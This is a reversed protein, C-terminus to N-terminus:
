HVPRRMRVTLHSILNFIGSFLHWVPFARMKEAKTMTSLIETEQSATLRFHKKSIDNSRELLLAEIRDKGAGTLRWNTLGQITDHHAAVFFGKNYLSIMNERYDLWNYDFIRHFEDAPTTRHSRVAILIELDKQKSNEM